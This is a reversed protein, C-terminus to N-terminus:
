TMMEGPTMLNKWYRKVVSSILRHLHFNLSPSKKIGLFDTKRERLPLSKLNGLETKVTRPQNTLRRYLDDYGRESSLDYYTTSQLPVPINKTDERYFVIPIFKENLVGSNYLHQIAITSEWIVGLGKGKEEEKMVRRLYTETCVLLVFQSDRIQKEMWLQWGESPATEYQDINADIGEARLQNSFALVRNEHEPSDHSYSIFVSPGSM